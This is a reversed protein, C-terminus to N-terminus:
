LHQLRLAALAGIADNRFVVTWCCLAHSQLVACFALLGALTVTEQQVQKDSM